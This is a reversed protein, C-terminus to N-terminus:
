EDHRVRESREQLYRTLGNSRLECAPCAGCGDGVIGNYCTLTNTRVYDFYGLQDALAWTEKKDLWMLPTHIVFPYDM